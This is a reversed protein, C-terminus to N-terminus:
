VVHQGELSHLARIMATMVPNAVPADEEARGSLAAVARLRDAVKEAIALSMKPGTDEGAALHIAIAQDTTPWETPWARRLAFAGSQNADPGPLVSAVGVPCTQTLEGLADMLDYGEDDSIEDRDRPTRHILDHAEMLDRAADTAQTLTVDHDDWIRVIVGEFARHTYETHASM